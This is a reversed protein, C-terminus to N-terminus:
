SESCKVLGTGAIITITCTRGGASVSLTGNIGQKLTGLPGFQFSQGGACTVAADLTRSDVVSSNSLDTIQYGAVGSATTV